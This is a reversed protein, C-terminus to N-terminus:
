KWIGAQSLVDEEKRNEVAEVPDTHIDFAKIVLPITILSLAIRAPMIVKYIIGAIVFSGASKPIRSELKLFKVIKGGQNTKSVLFYTFALISWSM